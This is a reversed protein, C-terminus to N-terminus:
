IPSYRYWYVFPIFTFNNKHPSKEIKSYPHHHVPLIHNEDCVEMVDGDSNFSLFFM